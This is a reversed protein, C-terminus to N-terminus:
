RPAGVATFPDLRMLVGSGFCSVVLDSPSAAFNAHNPQDCGALTAPAGIRTLLDTGPAYRFLHLSDDNAGTSAILLGDGDELLTAEIPGDGVRAMATEVAGAPTIELVHITDAGYDALVCVNGASSNERCRLLRPAVYALSTRALPAPGGGGSGAAGGFFAGGDETVVFLQGDSAFAASVPSGTPALTYPAGGTPRVYIVAPANQVIAIREPVGDLDHDAVVYDTVNGSRDTFVGGTGPPSAIWGVSFSGARGWMQFANAGRDGAVDRHCAVGYAPLAFGDTIRAGSDLSVIDLGGEGGAVAVYYGNSLGGPAFTSSPIQFTCAGEPSGITPYTRPGSPPEDTVDVVLDIGITGVTRGSGDSVDVVAPGLVDEPASCDFRFTIELTGGPAIELPAAVPAGGAEALTRAPLHRVTLYFPDVGSSTFTSAGITQPCESAGVVHTVSHSTPSARVEGACGCDPDRCDVLGDDDDDLGDDCVTEHSCAFTLSCDEDDCDIAGDVDNDIGDDCLEPPTEPHAGGCAPGAVCVGVVVVAWRWARPGTM